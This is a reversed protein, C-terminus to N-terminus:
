IEPSEGFSRQQNSHSDSALTNRIQQRARGLRATLTELDTGVITAIEGLKLGEYESFILAERELPPLSTDHLALIKVAEM